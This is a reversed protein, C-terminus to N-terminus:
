KGLNKFNQVRRKIKIKGLITQIWLSQKQKGEAVTQIAKLDVTKMSKPFNSIDSVAKPQPIQLKIQFQQGKIQSKM